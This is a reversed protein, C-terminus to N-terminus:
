VAETFNYVSFKAESLAANTDSASAAHSVTRVTNLDADQEPSDALPPPALLKTADPKGARVYHLESKEAAKTPQDMKDDARLPQALLTLSLLAPIFCLPFLRSRLKM